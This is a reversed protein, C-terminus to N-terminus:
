PKVGKPKRTALYIVGGVAALLLAIGGILWMNATQPNGPETTQTEEESPQQVGGGGGGGSGSPPKSSLGLSCMAGNLSGHVVFHWAGGCLNVIDETWGFNKILIDKPIGQYYVAVKTGAPVVELVEGKKGRLRYSKITYMDTRQINQFLEKLKTLWDSEQAPPVFFSEAGLISVGFTKKM